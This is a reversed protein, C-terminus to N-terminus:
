IRVISRCSPTISYVKVILSARSNAPLSWTEMFVGLKWSFELNGHFSWTEMFVELKWSFELNGYFSWTEMFVGLRYPRHLRVFSKATQNISFLHWVALGFLNIKTWLFSFLLFFIKKPDNYMSPYIMTTTEQIKNFNAWYLM